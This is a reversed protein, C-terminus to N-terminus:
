SFWCTGDDTLKGGISECMRREERHVDQDQHSPQWPEPQTTTLEFAIGVLMILVAIILAVKIPNM